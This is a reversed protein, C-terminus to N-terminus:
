PLLSIFFAMSSRVRKTAVIDLTLLKALVNRVSGFLISTWGGVLTIRAKFGMRAPLLCVVSPISLLCLSAAEPEEWSGDARERTPLELLRERSPLEADERTPFGVDERTPFLGVDERTPIPGVNASGRM